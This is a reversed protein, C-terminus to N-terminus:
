LSAMGIDLVEELFVYVGDYLCDLDGTSSLSQMGVIDSDKKPQFSKLLDLLASQKSLILDPCTLM